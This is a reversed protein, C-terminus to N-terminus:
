TTEPGVGRSRFYDLAERGNLVIRGPLEYCSQSPRCGPSIVVYAKSEVGHGCCSHAVDPLYDVLCPDLGGPDVRTPHKEVGCHACRGTWSERELDRVYYLDLEFM